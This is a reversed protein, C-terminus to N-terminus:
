KVWELQIQLPFPYLENAEYHFSQTEPKCHLKSKKLFELCPHNKETEEYHIDVGTCGSDIAHQCAVALMAFEIKRGMVRCSLIFDVIRLRSDVKEASLLGTLGQSGFRDEVHMVWIWREPHQSWALFESESMRRTQLNMQNTKNLLQAARPLNSISLAEVRVRMDLTKLWEDLTGLSLKAAERQREAQYMQARQLDEKSIAMSDFCNLNTLAARYELPDIPWDPVHVEKLSEAIRAREAPNDDIFVISNVGLNLDALIELLNQAKDNWNIRWASFDDRRLVMEPHKDIAELAVSENNKSVIALLIGRSRLSKLAKQFDVFAEGVPDHGGLALGEWGIDGVIGGWLTNDLDVAVLKKTAGEAIRIAAKIESTAQKFVRNTFAVKAMYWLKASFAQNGASQVWRPTNLLHIGSHKHILDALCLNMRMLLNAIGKPDALDTIGLGRELAPQVWAPVFLTNVRRKLAILQLSFQAVEDLIEQTSVNEFNISRNFSSLVSQPQTWVVAFDLPKKWCEADKDILIQHVQGFPASVMKVAPKETNNSLLANFNDPNFDSITIGTLAM